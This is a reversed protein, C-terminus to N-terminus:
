ILEMLELKLLDKMKKNILTVRKDYKYENCINISSDTSGDNILILEFDTYTQSLISKICRRLTKLM